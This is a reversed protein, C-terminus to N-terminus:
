DHIRKRIIQSILDTFNFLLQNDYCFDARTRFTNVTNQKKTLHIHLDVKLSFVRIYIIQIRVM